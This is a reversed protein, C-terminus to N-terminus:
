IKDLKIKLVFECLSDGTSICRTEDCFVNKSGIKDRIIEEIIGALISSFKVEPLPSILDKCLPNDLLVMRFELHNNEKELTDSINDFSKGFLYNTILNLTTRIYTKQDLFSPKIINKPIITEDSKELILLYRGAERGFKKLLENVQAPPVNNELLYTTVGILYSKLLVINVKKNVTELPNLKVAM